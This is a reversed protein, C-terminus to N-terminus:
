NPELILRRRTQDFIIIKFNRLIENSIQGASLTNAGEGKTALSFHVVPNAIVTRGLRINTARGIRIKSTGGIGLMGAETTEQRSDLLKRSKVFPSNFFIGSDAGTDIVFLATVPALGPLNVTAPISPNNDIIKIPLIDGRGRYRYNRPSYLDIVKDAYNIRVVFRSIFDYGLIGAIPEGAAPSPFDLALVGIENLRFSAGPLDFMVNRAFAIDDENEGVGAVKADGYLKLSLAKAQKTTIATQEFGSDLGFLLPESKNVRVRLFMHGKNSLEFPIALASSGNSFRAESTSGIAAVRLDGHSFCMFLLAVSLVMLRPLSKNHRKM